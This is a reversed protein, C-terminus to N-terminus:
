PNTAPARRPAWHWPWPWAWPKWPCVLVWWLGLVVLFVFIFIVFAIMVDMGLHLETTFSNYMIANLNWRPTQYENQGKPPSAV